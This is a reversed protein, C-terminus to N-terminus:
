ENTIEMQYMERMEILANLDFEVKNLIDLAFQRQGECFALDMALEGSMPFPSLVRARKCIDMLVLKGDNSSFVDKYLQIYDIDSVKKKPM